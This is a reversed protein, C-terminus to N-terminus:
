APKPAAHWALTEQLRRVPDQSKREQLGAEVNRLHEDMLRAAEDAKKVEMAKLIQEHEDASASAEQTTQYLMSILTTRMTLDAIIRIILQNSTLRAIQVDFDNLLYTRRAVDNEAIANRQRQLHEWLAQIQDQTADRVFERVLASQILRRTAFVDRVEQETPEVVFWGRKPKVSVIGQSALQALAQRVVTRSVQFLATLEEEGIRTGPALRRELIANIVSTVIQQWPVWAKGNKRKM